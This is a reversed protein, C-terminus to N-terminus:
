GVRSYTTTLIISCSLIETFFTLTALGLGFGLILIAGFLDNLRIPMKKAAEPRRNTFCKPAQHFKWYNKWYNPLGTEWVKM